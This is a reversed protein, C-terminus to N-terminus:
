IIDNCIMKMDGPIVGQLQPMECVKDRVFANTLPTIDDGSISVGLDLGNNSTLQLLNLLAPRADQKSDFELYFKHIFVFCENM